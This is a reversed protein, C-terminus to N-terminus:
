NKHLPVLVSVSSSAGHGAVDAANVTVTYTRGAPDKKNRTSDLQITFSYNGNPAITFVGSPQLQGYSDVTSYTGSGVDPGSGTDTVTGTITVSIIKGNAPWIKPPVSAISVSPTAVDIKVAQSRTTESNGAVDDSWFEVTHSGSTALTFPGAYNQTAGGDIKYYTQNVGSLDDGATLTVEVNGVYWGGGGLVGALSASTTPALNDATFNAILSRNGVATFSYTKTFAFHAGGETWDVFYYGSNPIADLTVLNGDNYIGAGTITGGITPSASADITFSVPGGIGAITVNYTKSVTAGGVESAEVTFTYLGAVIPTGSLIGTIQDLTMGLPLVGSSIHALFPSGGAVVVTREPYAVGVDGSQLNDILGLNPAADFASMQAGFFEGVIEVTSLDVTVTVWEGTTPDFHDAYTVTGVGHVGDAAVADAMAEGTEADFPGIYKFFEYRRTVVEDGEPLDEAAGALEGNKGGGDVGFETQM